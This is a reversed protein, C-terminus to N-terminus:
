FMIYQVNHMCFSANWRVLYSPKLRRDVVKLATLSSVYPKRKPETQGKSNKAKGGRGGAKGKGKNDKHQDFVCLEGNIIALKFVSYTFVKAGHNSDYDSGNGVMNRNEDYLSFDKLNKMAMFFRTVAVKDTERNKFVGLHLTELNHATASRPHCLAKFGSRGFRKTRDARFSRLRKINAVQELTDNSAVPLHLHALQPANEALEECMSTLNKLLADDAFASGGVIELKVLNFPASHDGTLAVSSRFLQRGVDIYDQLRIKRLDVHFQQTSKTLMLRILNPASFYSCTLV